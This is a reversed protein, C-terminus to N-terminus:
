HGPIIIQPGDQFEGRLFGPKKTRIIDAVIKLTGFPLVFEGNHPQQFFYSYAIPCHQRMVYELREAFVKPTTYKEEADEDDIFQWACMNVSASLYEGSIWWLDERVQEEKKEQKEM